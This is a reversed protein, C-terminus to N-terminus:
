KVNSAGILRALNTVLKDILDIVKDDAETRVTKQALKVLEAHLIEWVLLILKEIGIM